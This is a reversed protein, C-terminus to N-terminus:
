KIRQFESVEKKVLEQFEPKEFERVPTKGSKILVIKDIAHGESRGSISVTFNGRTFQRCVPSIPHPAGQDAHTNWTWGSPHGLIAIKNWGDGLAKQLKVDTGGSFRIWVDNGDPDPTEPRNSPDKMKSRIMLQYIGPDDIKFQFNLIGKGAPIGQGKIGWELYGFGSHGTTDALYKWGETVPHSEVEIVVLGNKEMYMGATRMQNERTEIWTRINGKKILSPFVTLNAPNEEKNRTIFIRDIECGDERMSLMIEHRGAKSIDLSIPARTDRQTNSWNWEKGSFTMKKGSEPWTNDVGVHLTNDDGDTALARVWVYYVGPKEFEVMYSLIAAKGGVGYISTKSNIADEDKQRADPLLELYANGSAGSLHPPDSDPGVAPILNPTVLHWMREKTLTQRYFNEAEVAIMGMTDKYVVNAGYVSGDPNNVRLPKMPTIKNLNFPEPLQGSYVTVKPAPVKEEPQFLSDSTLIFQDFEEGDERLCFQIDQIGKSPIDLSARGIKWPNRSIRNESKWTWEKKEVPSQLIKATQPWTGNIGAQTTNDEQDNSRLRTWIFYRGSGPFWVKYHLVALDGNSGLNDGPIIPDEDSHFLDPLGEVYALGGANTYSATDHDPWVGPHHIPSNIYWARKETLTQKYFLEAEVVIPGSSSGFVLDEGAIPLSSNQGKANALTLIFALLLLGSRIMIGSILNKANDLIQIV